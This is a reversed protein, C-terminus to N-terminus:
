NIFTLRRPIHQKVTASAVHLHKHDGTAESIPYGIGVEALSVKKNRLIQCSVGWRKEPAEKNNLDRRLHRRPSDVLGRFLMWIRLVYAQITCKLGSANRIWGKYGRSAWFIKKKKYRWRLNLLISLIKEGWQFLKAAPFNGNHNARPEQCDNPMRLFKQSKLLDFKWIIEM